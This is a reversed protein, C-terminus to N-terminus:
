EVNCDGTLWKTKYVVLYATVASVLLTSFGLVAAFNMWCACSSSTNIMLRYDLMGVLYGWLSSVVIAFFFIVAKKRM